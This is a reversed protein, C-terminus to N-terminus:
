KVVSALLDWIEQLNGPKNELLWITLKISHETKIYFIERGSFQAFLDNLLRAGDVKKIWGSDNLSEINSISATNLYKGEKRVNDIWARVDSESIPSPTERSQDSENYVYAIAEPDLLYNEYLRRPLFKLLDGGIAKLAELERDNEDEADIIVALIPSVVARVGSVERYIDFVLRAHKRAQKKSRLDGVDVLPLIKTHLFTSRDAFREMIRPFSRVETPGEVWLLNQPFLVDSVSVGIENMVGQLRDTEEIGLSGTSSIGNSFSLATITAPDAIRIIDSSHTSIFYQHQPFTKLISVLKKAAGPHLFSQPEDIIITRPEDSSVVVYLIALVQGIGTGCEKLPITLDDRDQAPDVTSVRIEVRQADLNIASVWYIDPFIAKVHELLLDYRRPRRTQLTQLVEALNSADQKLELSNGINCHSLNTREPYFRYIHPLLKQIIEYGITKTYDAGAASNYLEYIGGKVIKLSMLSDSLGARKEKYLGHSVSTQVLGTGTVRGHVDLRTDISENFLRIADELNGDAPQPIQIITHLDFTNVLDDEDDITITFDVSSVQNSIISEKYPKTRESVHPKHAFHLSLAELLATKGASNPGIIINVGPAFSMESSELFSKYNNVKVKSLYM